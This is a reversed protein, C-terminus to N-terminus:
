RGHGVPASPEMEYANRGIWLVERMAQVFPGTDSAVGAPQGNVYLTAGKGEEFVGAM